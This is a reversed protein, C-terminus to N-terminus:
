AQSDEGFEAETEIFREKLEPVPLPCYDLEGFFKLRHRAVLNYFPDLVSSPLIKLVGVMTWVGGLDSLANFAAKGHTLVEGNRLYIVTELSERLPALEGTIKAAAFESQLPSFQFARLWDVEILFKVFRHCLGCSGDYFLLGGHNKRWWSPDILLVHLPILFWLHIFSGVHTLNMVLFAVSFFWFIYRKKRLVLTFLGLTMFFKFVLEPTSLASGFMEQPLTFPSLLLAYSFVLLTQGGILLGRPFKWKEPKQETEPVMMFFLLLFFVGISLFTLDMIKAQYFCSWLYLAFSSTFRRNFGLGLALSFLGGLLCVGWLPLWELLNPFSPLQSEWVLPAFFASQEFSDGQLGLSLFVSAMVLGMILRSLIFQQRSYDNVKM